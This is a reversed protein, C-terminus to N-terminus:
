GTIKNESMGNTLMVSLPCENKEVEGTGFAVIAGTSVKEKVQSTM